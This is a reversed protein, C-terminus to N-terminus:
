RGVLYRDLSGLADLVKNITSIAYAEGNKQKGMSNQILLALGERTLGTRFMETAANSIQSLHQAVRSKKDAAATMWIEIDDLSEEQRPQPRTTNRRAPPLLYESHDNM